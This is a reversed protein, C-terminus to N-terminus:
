LVESLVQYDPCMTGNIITYICSNLIAACGGFNTFDHVKEYFCSVKWM